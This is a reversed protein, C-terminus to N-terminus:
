SAGATSAGGGSAASAAAAQLRRVQESEGPAHQNELCPEGPHPARNCLRCRETECGSCRVVSHGCICSSPPRPFEREDPAALAAAASLATEADADGCKCTSVLEM